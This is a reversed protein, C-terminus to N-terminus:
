EEGFYGLARFSELEEQSLELGEADLGTGTWLRVRLPQGGLDARAPFMPAALDAGRAPDLVVPMATAPAGSATPM